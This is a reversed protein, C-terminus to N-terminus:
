SPSQTIVCRALWKTLEPATALRGLGSPPILQKIRLRIIKILKLNPPQMPIGDFFDVVILGPMRFASKPGELQNNRLYVQLEPAVGMPHVQHVLYVCLRFLAVSLHM